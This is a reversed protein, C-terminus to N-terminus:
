KNDLNKGQSPVLEIKPPNIFPKIITHILVVNKLFDM